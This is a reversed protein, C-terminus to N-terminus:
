IATREQQRKMRCVENYVIKNYKGFREVLRDRYGPDCESKYPLGIAAEYMLRADTVNDFTKDYGHIYNMIKCYVQGADEMKSFHHSEMYERMERMARESGSWLGVTMASHSLRGSECPYGVQCCWDVDDYTYEHGFINKKMM